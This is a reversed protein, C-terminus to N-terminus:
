GWLDASKAVKRGWKMGTTVEKQAARKAAKQVAKQVAWSQASVAWPDVWLQDRLAAKRPAWLGAWVASSYARM